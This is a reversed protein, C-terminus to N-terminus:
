LMKKSKQMKKDERSCKRAKMAKRKALRCAKGPKKRKSM